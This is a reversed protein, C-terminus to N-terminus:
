WSAKRVGPITGKSAKERLIIRSLKCFRLVSRSRGTEICRNQIRTRSSNRPISSVSNQSLIKDSILALWKGVLKAERTERKLSGKSLCPNLSDLALRNQFVLDQLFVKTQLKKIEFKQVVTRYTKDKKLSVLM